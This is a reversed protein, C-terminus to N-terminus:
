ACMYLLELKALQDYPYVHLNIQLFLDLMLMNEPHHEDSRDVEVTKIKNYSFMLVILQSM